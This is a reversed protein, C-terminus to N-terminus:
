RTAPLRVYSPAILLEETRTKRQLSYQFEKRSRVLDGYLNRIFSNDDYSMMWKLVRLRKMYQALKRHDDDEYSSFYLRRGHTYYPPDLYVFTSKRKKGRPLHKKMFGLADENSLRIHKSHEGLWRVRKILGPGNFRADIEWTGGQKYGGIPASGVIIGSRSCRNLFFTAFGLKFSKKAREAEDQYIARQERWDRITPKEMDSIAKTFRASDQVVARWFAYVCPDYDNLYVDSVVGEQLLGLAAGAGGAFPECYLGREVGNKRITERLLGVLTAKGGPYRLPSIPRPESVAFSEAVPQMSRDGTKASSLAGPCTHHVM